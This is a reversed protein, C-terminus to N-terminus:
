RDEAVNPDSAPEGSDAGKLRSELKAIRSLLKEKERAAKEAAKEGRLQVKDMDKIAQDRERNLGNIASKAEKEAQAFRKDAEKQFADLDAQAKRQVETLLSEYKTQISIVERDRASTNEALQKEFSTRADEVTKAAERETTVVRQEAEQVRKNAVGIASEAEKQAALIDSTAKQNAEEQAKAIERSVASLAENKEKEAQKVAALSETEVKKASAEEERARTLQKSLVEVTDSLKDSKREAELTREELAMRDPMRSLEQRAEELDEVLDANDKELNKLMGNLSIRESAFEDREQALRSQLADIQAEDSTNQVSLKDAQKKMAALEARLNDAEDELVIDVGASAVEMGTGVEVFAVREYGLGRSAKLAKDVITKQELAPLTHFSKTVQFVVTPEISLSEFSASSLLRSDSGLAKSVATFVVSPTVEAPKVLEEAARPKPAVEVGSPKMPSVPQPASLGPTSPMPQVSEAPSKEQPTKLTPGTKTDDTITSRPTATKALDDGNSTSPLSGDPPFLGKEGSSRSSYPSPRQRALKKELAATEIDIKKKTSTEQPKGGGVLSPLLAVAVFLGLAVSAWAKNTVVGYEEPLQDRVLPVVKEEWGQVVATVVSKAARAASAQLKEKQTSDKKEALALSDAVIKEARARATEGLKFAGSKTGVTVCLKEATALIKRAKEKQKESAEGEAKVAEERAAKAKQIQEPSLQIRTTTTSSNEKDEEGNDEKGVEKVTDVERSVGEVQDKTVKELEEESDDVKAEVVGGNKGDGKHQAGIPSEEYESPKVVDNVITVDHVNESLTGSKGGILTHEEGVDEKTLSDDPRPNIPVADDSAARMHLLTQPYSRKCLALRNAHKYRSLPFSPIFLPSGFPM